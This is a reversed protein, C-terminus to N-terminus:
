RAGREVANETRMLWKSMYTDGNMIGEEPESYYQIRVSQGDDRLNGVSNVLVALSATDALIGEMGKVHRQGNKM